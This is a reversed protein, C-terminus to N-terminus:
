ALSNSDTLLRTLLPCIDSPDYPKAMFLPRPLLPAIESLKFWGSAYVIPM